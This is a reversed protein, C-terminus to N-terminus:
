LIEAVLFAFDVPGFLDVVVVGVVRMGATTERRM